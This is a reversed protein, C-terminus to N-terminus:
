DFFFTVGAEVWGLIVETNGVETDETGRHNFVAVGKNGENGETFGRPGRAMEVIEVEFLGFGRAMEVTGSQEAKNRWFNKGTARLEAKLRDAEGCTTGGEPPGTERM